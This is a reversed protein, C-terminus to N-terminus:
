SEAAFNGQRRIFARPGQNRLEPRCINQRQCLSYGWKEWGDDRTVMQRPEGLLACAEAKTTKGVILQSTKDADLIQKNGQEIALAPAVLAGFVVSMALLITCYGRITRTSM